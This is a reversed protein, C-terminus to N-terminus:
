LFVQNESGLPYQHLAAALELLSNDRTTGVAEQCPLVSRIHPVIVSPFSCMRKHKSTRLAERHINKRSIYGAIQAEVCCISM